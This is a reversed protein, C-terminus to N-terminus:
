MRNDLFSSHNSQPAAAYASKLGKKRRLETLETRCKDLADALAARCEAQKELIRTQMDADQASAPPESKASAEDSLASALERCLLERERLLGDLESFRADQIASFIHNTLKEVKVLLHQYSNGAGDRSAAAPSRTDKMEM